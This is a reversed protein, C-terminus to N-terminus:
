FYKAIDDDVIISCDDLSGEARGEKGEITMSKRKVLHCTNDVEGEITLGNESLNNIAM